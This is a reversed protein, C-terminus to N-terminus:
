VFVRFLSETNLILILDLLMGEEFPYVPVLEVITVDLRGNVELHFFFTVIFLNLIEFLKFLGLEAVHVVTLVILSEIPYFLEGENPTWSSM